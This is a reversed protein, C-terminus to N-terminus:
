RGKLSSFFDLKSATELVDNVKTVATAILTVIRPVSSVLQDINLEALNTQFLADRRPM